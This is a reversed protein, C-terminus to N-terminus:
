LLTSPRKLPQPPPKTLLTSTTCCSTRPKTERCRHDTCTHNNTETIVAGPLGLCSSGQSKPTLWEEQILSNGTWHSDRCWLILQFTISFSVQCQVRVECVSLLWLLGYDIWDGEIHLLLILPILPSQFLLLYMTLVWTNSFHNVNSSTHTKSAQVSCLAQSVLM